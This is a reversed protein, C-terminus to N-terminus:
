LSILEASVDVGEASMSIRVSMKSVLFNRSRVRVAKWMRFAALEPVTLNLDVSLIQRDKALWAAFETHYAQYLAEPALSIGMSQDASSESSPDAIVVGKDSAQGNGYLAIYAETPREAGYAPLPLIAAMNVDSSLSWSSGRLLWHRRVPACKALSLGIDVSKVDSLGDEEQAAGVQDCRDIFIEQVTGVLSGSANNIQVGEALKLSYLDKTGSHLVAQYDEGADGLVDTMASEEISGVDSSQSSSDSVDSTYKLEYGSKEARSSRFIDSVKNDWDLPDAGDLVDSAPMLRFGAGDQYVAACLMRCVALLLDTVTIDPLTKAADYEFYPMRTPPLAIGWNTGFIVVRQLFATMGQMGTYSVASGLIAGLEIAPVIEPLTSVDPQNRYKQNYNIQGTAAASGSEVTRYGPEAVMSEDVIPPLHVGTVEDAKLADMFASYDEYDDESWSLGPTEWIKSGWATEPDKGSFTYNIRGDEDIGDYELTGAAFPVGGVHITVALQKVAPELMMAGLYGFVAKNTPTPLFAIATTFPVPIRDDQLLPNEITLEFEAEPDLDLFIGNDTLIDVM